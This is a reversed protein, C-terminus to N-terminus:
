AGGGTIHKEADEKKTFRGTSEIVLEVGLDKWPLVAPDKEALVKIKQGNVILNEDDFGVDHQYTGFNSDHKLLYALTKTDTLDNVAVIELDTRDFAIKFANRGIRGFGNIAVRTKM